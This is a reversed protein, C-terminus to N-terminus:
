FDLNLHRFIPGCSTMVDVEMTLPELCAGSLMVFEFHVQITDPTSQDAVQRGSGGQVTEPASDDVKKGSCAQMTDPTGDGVKMCSRSETTDPTSGGVEVGCRTQMTEPSNDGLGGGVAAMAAISRCGVFLDSGVIQYVCRCSLRCLGSVCPGHM